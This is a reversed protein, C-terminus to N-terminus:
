HGFESWWEVWLEARERKKRGGRREWDEGKREKKGWSKIHFFLPSFLFPSREERNKHAKRVRAHRSEGRVYYVCVHITLPSDWISLAFRALFDVVYHLFFVLIDFTMHRM